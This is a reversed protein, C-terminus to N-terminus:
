HGMTSNLIEFNDSITVNHWWSFVDFCFYLIIFECFWSFENLIFRDLNCQTIFTIQFFHLLCITFLFIVRGSKWALFVYITVIIVRVLVAYICLYWYNLIVSPAHLSVFHIFEVNICM